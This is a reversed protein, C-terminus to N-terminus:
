KSMVLGCRIAMGILPSSVLWLFVLADNRTSEVAEACKESQRYDLNLQTCVSKGIFGVVVTSVLYAPITGLALTLAFPAAYKSITAKINKM